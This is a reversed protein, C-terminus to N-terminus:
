TEEGEGRSNNRTEEEREKMDSKGTKRAFALRGLGPPMELKCDKKKKSDRERSAVEWERKEGEQWSEKEARRSNQLRCNSSSLISPKSPTIRCTIKEKFLHALVM